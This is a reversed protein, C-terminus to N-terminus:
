PNKTGAPAPTASGAPAPAASGAPAPTASGAPAPTASGAPAPAASGAPAPAASGAPAPTASGAPAPAASGAPAPASSGAPAPTASGAPAPAATNANENNMEENNQDESSNNPAEPAPNEGEQQENAKKAEAIAAEIATRRMDRVSPPTEQWIFHITFAFRRLELIKDKSMSSAISTLDGMGGAMGSGMGGAMGGGMMANGGMGAGMAAHRGSGPRSKLMKEMLSKREKAAEEPDLLRYKEDIVGPNMMIPYYIGLERLTLKETGANGARQRELSVPLEVSGHKLNYLITQRVYQPGRAVDDVDNSNHYHYGTIQVIRGKGTPGPIKELRTDTSEKYDSLAATGTAATEESSDASSDSSESSDTSDSAASDTAGAGALEPIPLASVDFKGGAEGKTDSAVPFYWYQEPTIKSGKEFVKAEESDIYYWKKAMTFWQSLDDMEEVEINKIYIRNQKEIAERKLASAGEKLIEISPNEAPIVTNIAKLLELWTMRGEVNSTLNQGIQDVAKFNGVETTARSKLDQSNATVKKAADYSRNIEYNEVTSYAVTSTVFQITLAVLLLAAAALAWPKKSEILRETLIEKPVLNIDMPVQHLLQLALGYAIGFSSANDKFQPNALVDTGRMTKFENIFEVELGHSKALFQRLGPLKMANGLAYIKRINATKNLSTYYKISRDIESLMDTFVPKMAIIIAKPDQSASTNRKIHEANSFTLKLSKTLAKTFLNGGIPINRLWVTVGNTIIVETTDTGINLIVDYDTLEDPSHSSLEDYDCKEHIFTNYLAVQAGQMCDVEIGTSSYSELTKFALERKMAYMFINVDLAFNGETIGGVQRYDWIVEKLDFPLWQKVEYKILDAIKKPDIPPLPQFRWLTNQGSVSVAIKEGKVNNRSLFLGLSEAFIAEPDAGPQTMIKSHEIYDFGLVEVTGPESGLRCRLAKLSTNGIDIGWVIDNRAM